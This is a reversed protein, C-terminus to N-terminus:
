HYLMQKTFLRDPTRNRGVPELEAEGSGENVPSGMGLPNLMKRTSFLGHCELGALTAIRTATGLVLRELCGQHHLQFGSLIALFAYRRAAREAPVGAFENLGAFEM